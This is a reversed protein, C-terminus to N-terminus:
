FTDFKEIVSRYTPYKLPRGLFTKLKTNDVKQNSRAFGSYGESLSVELPMPINLKECYYQVVDEILAPEDDSVSIVKPVTAFDANLISTIVGVIDDVHVRNSWRGRVLRYDGEKMVQILGRDDGYIASLRLVVAPFGSNQWAQECLVRARGRDDYPRLVSEESVVEGNQRGYVGTSSLYIVGTLTEKLKSELDLARQIFRQIGAVPDPDTPPVSDVIYRIGDLSRILVDVDEQYRLDVKLAKFGQSVSREVGRSSTHTLLVRESGLERAVRQLTYGAGLLLVDPNCM